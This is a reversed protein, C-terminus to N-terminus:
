CNSVYPPANRTVQMFLQKEEFINCVFCDRLVFHVFDFTEGHLHPGNYVDDNTETVVLERREIHPSSVSGSLSDSEGILALVSFVCCHYM